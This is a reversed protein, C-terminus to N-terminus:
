VARSIAFGAWVAALGGALQGLANLAAPAWEGDRLLALTEYTYTSFTTFGGLLGILLFTRAPAAIVARETGLGAVLGFALCGIVNVAFTGAPFTAGAFRHVLGALAYRAVAGIAGGAAVELV